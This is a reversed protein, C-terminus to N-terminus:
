KEYDFRANRMIYSNLGSGKCALEKMTEVKERGASHYSYRYVKPTKFFKVDIYTAGLEYAEVNSSGGNNLYKKMSDAEKNAGYYYNKTTTYGNDDIIEYYKWSAYANQAPNAVKREKVDNLFLSAVSYYTCVVLVVLMLIVSIASLILLWYKTPLKYKEEPKRVLPSM